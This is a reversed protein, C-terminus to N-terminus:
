HKSLIKPFIWIRRDYWYFVRRRAVSYNLLWGYRESFLFQNKNFAWIWGLDERYLWSDLGQSISDNNLYVWSGDIDNSWEHNLNNSELYNAIENQLSNNQEEKKIIKPKETQNMIEMTKEMSKKWSHCRIMHGSIDLPEQANVTNCYDCGCLFDKVQIITSSLCPTALLFFLFFIRM